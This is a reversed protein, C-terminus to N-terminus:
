HAALWTGIANVDQEAPGFRQGLERATLWKHFLPSTRDHLADITSELASDKDAPRRLLLQLHTLPMSDPVLGRDNAANAEPRTNGALTVHRGDDIATATQAPLRGDRASQAHANSALLAVAGVILNLKRVM